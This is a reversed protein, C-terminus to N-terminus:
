MCLPYDLAGPARLLEILSGGATRFEAADADVLTLVGETANILEGLEEDSQIAGGGSSVGGVPQWLSGDLDIPSLLGCHGLSYPYPVGVELGPQSMPTLSTTPIDAPIEAVIPPLPAFVVDLLFSAAPSPLSEVQGPAVPSAEPPEDGALAPGTGSLALAAVLLTAPAWALSTQAAPVRSM